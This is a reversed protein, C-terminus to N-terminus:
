TPPLTRSIQAPHLIQTPTRYGICRIYVPEGPTYHDTDPQHLQPDYLVQEWLPGIAEIGWDQLWNDLPTLLAILNRAPLDPKIEILKRLTPLNILLPQLQEFTTDRFDTKLQERQQRLESQLLRCQSELDAISNQKISDIGIPPHFARRSRSVLGLLLGAVGLDLMIETFWHGWVGDM